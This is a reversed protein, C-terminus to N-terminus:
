SLVCEGLHLAINHIQWNTHQAYQPRAVSSNLRIRHPTRDKINEHEKLTRTSRPIEISFTAAYVMIYAHTHWHCKWLWGFYMSNYRYCQANARYTEILGTQLSSHCLSSVSSYARIRLYEKPARGCLLTTSTNAIWLSFKAGTTRRKVYVNILDERKRQTDDNDAADTATRKACNLDIKSIFQGLDSVHCAHATWRREFWTIFGDSECRVFRNNHQKNDAINSSYHDNLIAHQTVHSLERGYRKSKKGNRVKICCCIINENM